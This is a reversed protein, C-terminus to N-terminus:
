LPINKAAIYEPNLDRYEAPTMPVFRMHALDARLPVHTTIGDRNKAINLDSTPNNAIPDAPGKSHAARRDLLLVVDADQELSGSDRLDSLQPPRNQQESARSLQSLVLIPVNLRKALAKFRASIRGVEINRNEPREPKANQDAQVLGLYDVIILDAEKRAVMRRCMASIDAMTAVDDVVSIGSGAMEAVTDAVRQRDPAPLQNVRCGSIYTYEAEAAAALLRMMVARKSQELSLFLVKHQKRAANLAINLALATKGMSPRAALLIYNGGHLGNTAADLFPYGTGIGRAAQKDELIGALAMWDNPGAPASDAPRGTILGTIREQACDLVEQVDGCIADRTMTAGVDAIARRQAADLVIRLHDRWYVATTSAQLAAILAPISGVKEIEGSKHLQDAVTVLDVSKGAHYLALAASYMSRVDASYIYEAPLQDAVEGIIPPKATMIDSLLAREAQRTADDSPLIIGHTTDM